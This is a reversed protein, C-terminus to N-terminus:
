DSLSTAAPVICPALVLEQGQALLAAAPKIQAQGQHVAQVRQQEHAQVALPLLSTGPHGAAEFHVRVPRHPGANSFSTTFSMKSGAHQASSLNDVKQLSQQPQGLRPVCCAPEQARAAPRTGLPGQRDQLFGLIEGNGLSRLGM